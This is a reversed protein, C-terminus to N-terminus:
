LYHWHCVAENRRKVNGTPFCSRWHQKLTNSVRNRAYQTTLNFNRRITDAPTWGFLPRLLEFNQKVPSINSINVKNTSNISDPYFKDLVDDVLLM